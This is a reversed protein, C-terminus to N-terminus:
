TMRGIDIEVIGSQALHALPIAAPQVVGWPNLLQISASSGSGTVKSFMYCHNGVLGYGLGNSATDMTILDGAAVFSQLASLTLAAPSM